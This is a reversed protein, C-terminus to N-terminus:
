IHQYESLFLESRDMLSELLIKLKRQSKAYNLADFESIVKTYGQKYLNHREYLTLNNGCKHTKWKWCCWFHYCIDRGSYSYMRRSSISDVTQNIIGRRKHQAEATTRKNSYIKEIGNRHATSNDVEADVKYKSKKIEEQDSENYVPAIQKSNNLHSTDVQYLRSSLKYYLMQTSIFKVTVGWILFILSAFGGSLGIIDIINLTSRTTKDAKISQYFGCYMIMTEDYNSIYRFTEDVTLFEYEKSNGLISFPSDKTNAKNQSLYMDYEKSLGFTFYDYLRNDVYEKVPNDYDDSDFYSNIVDVYFYQGNYQVIDEYPAWYDPDDSQCYTLYVGFNKVVNTLDYVGQIVFNDMNKPCIFDRLYVNSQAYNKFNVDSENWRAKELFSYNTNNLSGDENYRYEFQVFELNFYRPDNLIEYPVGVSGFAMSFNYKSMYQPNEHFLDQYNASVSTTVFKNNVLRSILFLLYAVTAVIALMTVWGGWFTKHVENGKFTFAIPKGYADWKRISRTLSKCM